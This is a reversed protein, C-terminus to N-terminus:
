PWYKFIIRLLIRTMYEAEKKIQEPFYDGRLFNRIGVALRADDTIVGNANRAFCRLMGFSDNVSWIVAKKGSKQIKGITVPTAMEEELYLGDVELKEINGFASYCLYGTNAEPHKTEMYSVVSYKMSIFTVQDLMEYNSVIQFVESAMRYDATKGKLEVYVHIKDKSAELIEELTAFSDEKGEQM